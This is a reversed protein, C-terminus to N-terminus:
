LLKGYMQENDILELLIAQANLASEIDNHNKASLKDVLAMIIEHRKRNLIELM